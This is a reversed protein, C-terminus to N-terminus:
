RRFSEASDSVPRPSQKLQHHFLFRSFHSALHSLLHGLSVIGSGREFALTTLNTCRFFCQTSITKISSPICISQLASCDMFASEGLTAIHCGAEFSVNLLAKCREFCSRSLTEVSSPICISHLVPCSAFAYIGLISVKCGPEFRVSLVSPCSVFCGICIVEVDSWITVEEETGVYRILCTEDFDTVFNASAALSINDAGVLVDRIGSHAM